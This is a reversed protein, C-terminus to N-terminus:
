VRIGRKLYGAQRAINTGALDYHRRRQKGKTLSSSSILHDNAPCPCGPEGYHNYELMGCNISVVAYVNM